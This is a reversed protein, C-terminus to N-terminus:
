FKGKFVQEWSDHNCRDIYYNGKPIHNFIKDVDLNSLDKKIIYGNEGDDVINKAEKFDTIIVPVGRQLAEYASYCFSETDSLQVLYDANKIFRKNNVDPKIIVFEPISQIEKLLNKDAIQDLTCCLFWTFNKGAEKFAKAMEVMRYAGKELTMRSLTIFTLGDEDKFDDDLINYIVKSDVGMSNKLGTAASDSVAIVGDVRKNPQWKFSAWASLKTLEEWDAHIMQYIKKAIVRPMIEDCNYNGLLLVDCEIKTRRDDIIVNAYRSLTLIQDLDASNAIITIDRDKYHKTLNYVFTEIGGITYLYNQYIVIKPGKTVPHQKYAQILEVLKVKKTGFNMLTKLRETTEIDFTDGELRLKDNHLTDKFRKIVRVKYM